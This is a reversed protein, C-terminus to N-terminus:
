AEETTRQTQGNESLIFFFAGYLALLIFGIIALMRLLADVQITVAKDDLNIALLWQWKATQITLFRQQGQEHQWTYLKAKEVTSIQQYAKNIQEAFHQNPNQMLETKSALVMHPFTNAILQRATQQAISDSLQAQSELTQIISLASNLQYQNAKTLTKSLAMQYNFMAFAAVIVVIVLVVSINLIRKFNSM